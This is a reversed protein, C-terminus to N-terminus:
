ESFYAWAKEVTKGGISIEQETPNFVVYESSGEEFALKLISATADDRIVEIGSAYATNQLTPKEAEQVGPNNNYSRNRYPMHPFYIQTFIKQDGKQPTGEWVYRLQAPCDTTRADFTMRDVVQLRCDEQPAFWVLLDVPPLKMSSRGNDAVPASMFTNAWHNGLQPGINQTNWIPSVRAHFSAEFTVLERTALFRNKVFIFEREYVVPLGDPNFVKVKAFTVGSTDEFQTVESRIDPMSGMRWNEDIRGKDPHLRRACTEDIDQILLRNEESSGKSTVIQTFPAGYRNMGMIGGPNAPFSTPHCEVLCFFDGPNWGSRFILKDPWKKDNMVWSCCIHGRNERPDADGLLKETLAKDTHAVRMAENRMTHISGSEPEVPAISDDAFLYALSAHLSSFYHENKAQYRLYNMLKHAVYRYRGDGTKAAIRELVSVRFHATSNYGGNPGYPNVAGDSTVEMMIRTFIQQMGADGYVRDDGLLRDGHFLPMLLPGMMYGTDNQPVDKVKWFDNFVLQGYRAWHEAEPIDPYWTAALWKITGEPMSRHCGGRWEIPEEAWVHLNRCYYLVLDKFWPTNAEMFNGEMLHQRYLPFLVAPWEFDWIWKDEEVRKKLATHYQKLMEVCAEAWRKDGSQVYKALVPMFAVLSGDGRNPRSALAELDMSELCQMYTERTIVENPIPYFAPNSMDAYGFRYRESDVFFQTPAGIREPEQAFSGTFGLPLLGLSCLAISHAFRTRETYLSM